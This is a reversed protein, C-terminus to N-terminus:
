DERKSVGAKVFVAWDLKSAGNPEGSFRPVTGPWRYVSWIAVARARAQEQVAKM